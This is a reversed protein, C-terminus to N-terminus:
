CDQSCSWIFRPRTCVLFVTYSGSSKRKIIKFSLGAAQCRYKLGKLEAIFTGQENIRIECAEVTLTVLNRLSRLGVREELQGITKHFPEGDLCDSHLPLTLSGRHQCWSRGINRRCTELRVDPSSTCPFSQAMNVEASFRRKFGLAHPITPDRTYIVGISGSHCGRSTVRYIDGCRNM